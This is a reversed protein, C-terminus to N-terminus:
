VAGCYLYALYLIVKTKMFKVIREFGQWDDQTTNSNGQEVWRFDLLVVNSDERLVNEAKSDEWILM